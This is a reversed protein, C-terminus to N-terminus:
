NAVMWFILSTNVRNYILLYDALTVTGSNNADAALWYIGTLSPTGTNVFNYVILYDALTVATSSWPKTTSVQYTYTGNPINTLTFNGNVDTTATAIITAGSM